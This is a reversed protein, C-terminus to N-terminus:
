QQSEGPGQLLPPRTNDSALSSRNSRAIRGRELVLQSQIAAVMTRRDRSLFAVERSISKGQLAVALRDDTFSDTTVPLLMPGRWRPSAALEDVVEGAHDIPTVTGFWLDPDVVLTVIVNRKTLAELQDILRSSSSPVQPSCACHFDNLHEQQCAQQVAQVIPLYPDSRLEDSTCRWGPEDILRDAFGAGTAATFLFGRTLYFITVDGPGCPAAVPTPPPQANASPQAPAQGWGPKFASNVKNWAVEFSAEALGPMERIAQAFAVLLESYYERGPKVCREMGKDQYLKIARARDSRGNQAPNWNLKRLIPHVLADKIRNHEYAEDNYWRIPLVNKLGRLSGDEDLHAAPDRMAFVAIEKGCSDRSFYVPTAIAVLAKNTRLAESLVKDWDDGQPVWQDNTGLRMGAPRDPASRELTLQLDDFFKQLLSSVTKEEDARAYSFFFTPLPTPAM